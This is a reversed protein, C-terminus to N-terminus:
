TAPSDIPSALSVLIHTEVERVHAFGPGITFKHSVDDLSNEYLRVTGEKLLLLMPAHDHLIGVEGEETPLTVMLVNKQAVVHDPTVLFCKFLNM